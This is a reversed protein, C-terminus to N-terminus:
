GAPADDRFQLRLSFDGYPRAKYWLTGLGPEGPGTRLTGDRQLTVSSGGVYAWQALCRRSGDFIVTYGPEKRSARGGKTGWGHGHGYGHGHKGARKDRDPKGATAGGPAAVLAVAAILAAGAPLAIRKKM